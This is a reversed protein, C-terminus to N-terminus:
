RVSSGGFGTSRRVSGLNSPGEARDASNSTSGTRGPGGGFFTTPRRSQEWDWQRRQRDGTENNRFLYRDALGGALAGTWFGPRWPETNQTKSYPPPPDRGTDNDYYGPFRGDGGGPRPAGEPRNGRSSGASSTERTQLCSKLFSYFIFLLVAVWAVTFVIDMPKTGSTHYSESHGRLDKPIEVLRYEVSCSDTSCSTLVTLYLFEYIDGKLVYPDGPGSWGECSVMVKGFRLAEPLDAECVEPQYTKCPKGACVLQPIPSTRRSETLEDKYFTLAKISALKLRSM